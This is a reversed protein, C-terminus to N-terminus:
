HGLHPVTKETRIGFLNISLIEISQRMVPIEVLGAPEQNNANYRQYEICRKVHDIIHRSMGIWHCHRAIREIPREVGYHGATPDDHCERLINERKHTPVVLQSEEDGRGLSYHYSGSRVHRLRESDLLTMELHKLM